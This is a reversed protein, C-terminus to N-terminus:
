KAERPLEGVWPSLDIIASLMVHVEAGAPYPEVEDLTGNQMALHFRGTDAIWACDTLVLALSTLRDLKGTYYNTVTRIFVSSGVPLDHGLREGCGGGLGAAIAAIERIEGLKLENINM